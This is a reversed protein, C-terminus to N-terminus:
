AAAKKRPPNKGKVEVVQDNVKLDSPDEVANANALHREPIAELDAVFRADDEPELVLLRVSQSAREVNATRFEPDGPPGSTDILHITYGFTADCEVLVRRDQMSVVIHPEHLAGRKREIRAGPLLDVLRRVLEEAQQELHRAVIGPYLRTTETTTHFLVIVPGGLAVEIAPRLRRFRTLLDLQDRADANFVDLTRERGDYDRVARSGAWGVPRGDFVERLRPLWEDHATM